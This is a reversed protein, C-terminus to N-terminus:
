GARTGRRTPWSRAHATVADVEDDRRADVVRLPGAAAVDVVPPQQGPQDRSPQSTRSCRTASRRSRPRAARRAGRRRPRAPRRGPRRRRGLRQHRSASRSRSTTSSCMGSPPGASRSRARVRRGGHHGGAPQVRCSPARASRGRGPGPARRRARRRGRAAPAGPGGGAAFSSHTPGTVGALPWSTRSAASARPRAVEVPAARQTPASSRSGSKTSRSAVPRRGPDGVPDVNVPGSAGRAVEVRTREVVSRRPRPTGGPSRRCPPSRPAPGRAGPPRSRPRRADRLRDAPSSPAGPSSTGGPRRRDGEGGRQAAPQGVRLEAVPQAADAASGARSGRRGPGSVARTTASRQGTLRPSGVGARGTDGVLSCGVSPYSAVM